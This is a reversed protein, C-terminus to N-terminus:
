VFGLSTSGIEGGVFVAGDPLRTGTHSARVRIMGMSSAQVVKFLRAFPELSNVLCLVRYNTRDDVPSNRRPVRVIVVVRFGTANRLSVRMERNATGASGDRIPRGL